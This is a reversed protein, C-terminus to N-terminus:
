CRPLGGSSERWYMFTKKEVTFGLVPCLVRSTTEGAQLHLLVMDRSRGTVSVGSGGPISSAKVVLLCQTSMTSESGVM